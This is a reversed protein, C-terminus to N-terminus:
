RTLEDLQMALDGILERDKESQRALDSLTQRMDHHVQAKEEDPLTAEFLANASIKKDTPMQIEAVSVPPTFLHSITTDLTHAFALLESATFSRKGREAAWVAQRSWEIGLLEGLQIGLDSQTIGARKRAAAINAGIVDEIKM